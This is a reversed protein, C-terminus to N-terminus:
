EKGCCKKFKRESGCPCSNNRATPQPFVLKKPSRGTSRQEFRDVVRKVSYIDGEFGGLLDLDEVIARVSLGGADKIDVNGGHELYWQLASCAMEKIKAFVLTPKSVFLLQITAIDHAAVSGFRNQRNIDAGAEIMIQAFDIDFYHRTSISHMLATTGSVDTGAMRSDAAGRDTM